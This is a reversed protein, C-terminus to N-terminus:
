ATPDDGSEDPSHKDIADEFALFAEDYQDGRLDSVAEAGFKKLVEFVKERDLKMLERAKGRVDEQTHDPKKVEDAPKKEVVKKDAPKKEEVPKKAEASSPAATLGTAIAAPATAMTKLSEAISELAAVGRELLGTM